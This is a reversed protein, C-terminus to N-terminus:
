VDPREAKGDLIALVLESSQGSRIARRAQGIRGALNEARRSAQLLQERMEAVTPTFRSGNVEAGDRDSHRSASAPKGASNM